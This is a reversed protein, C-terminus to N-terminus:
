NGAPKVNDFSKSLFWVFTRYDDPHAPDFPKWESVLNDAIPLGIEKMGTTVMRAVEYAGYPNFHTNDAFAMTQGPFTGAPYHVLAHTSGEEGLTEFFTRTMDHLEIVPVNERKAVARMAAPYDGHTEMIKGDKFARRQTPTCFIITGGAKRVVDIFRKLNYSFNYWAGAGPGHEKQDNHGFECIVYDGPRLMTMIKDLRNQRLFSGATLGSEANNSICVKPGFWRTVMQGWSAWPDNNQDVVTSNGCLFVTTATTDRSIQIRNVAPNKGAWDLTLKDDWDLSSKERNNIMVRKKDSIYPSRKNITFSYTRLEKKKLATSEVLLRRAEARLQTDTARQRSGLTVTVRYNGDPVKVSFYVDHQGPNDPATVFDYGYGVEDSYVPQHKTLDFDYTQAATALPVLLLASLLLRNNMSFIKKILM